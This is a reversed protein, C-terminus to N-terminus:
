PDVEVVARDIARGMSDKVAQQVWLARFSHDDSPIEELTVNPWEGMRELRGEREFQAALPQERGLLLLAQTGQDRLSDLIRDVSGHHATVANARGGALLRHPAISRLAEDLEKRSVDRRVLRRWARGRLSALV